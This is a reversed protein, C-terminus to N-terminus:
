SFHCDYRFLIAVVPQYLYLHVPQKGNVTSPPVQVVLRDLHLHCLQVYVRWSWPLYRPFYSWSLCVEFAITTCLHLPIM